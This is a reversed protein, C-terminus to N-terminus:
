YGNEELYKMIEDDNFVENIKKVNCKVGFKNFIGDILDYTPDIFLDYGYTRLYVQVNGRRITVDLEDEIYEKIATTWLGYPLDIQLMYGPKFQVLDMLICKDFSIFGNKISINFLSCKGKLIHMNFQKFTQENCYAKIFSKDDVIGIWYFFKGSKATKFECFKVVGAVRVNKMDVLQESAERIEQIKTYNYKELKLKAEDMISKLNYGMRDNEQEVFWQKNPYHYLQDKFLFSETCHPSIDKQKAM